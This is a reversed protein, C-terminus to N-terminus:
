YFCRVRFKSKICLYTCIYTIYTYSRTKVCQFINIIKQIDQGVAHTYHLTVIGSINKYRLLNNMVTANAQFGM